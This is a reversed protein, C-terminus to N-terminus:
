VVSIHARLYRHRNTESDSLASDLKDCLKMLSDLRAVIRRQEALPLLIMPLHYFSERNIGPKLGNVLSKLRMTGLLYVLFNIDYFRPPIVYYAVDSVWSTTHCVNIAGASGKRGIIIAPNEVLYKDCYGIVGNSGYVPVTGTKIHKWKPLGKGYQLNLLDGARVWKWGNPIPFPIENKHIPPLTRVSNSKSAKESKKKKDSIQKLLVEVSEDTANQQLLQGRMAMDLIAQRLIKMNGPRATMDAFHSLIFHESKVFSTMSKIEDFSGMILQSRSKERVIQASELKDCLKMLMNVKVVIRKQEALPPLPIVLSQFNSMSVSGRPGNMHESFLGNFMSTQYVSLIYDSVIGGYLEIAILKNGFCIERDAIGCKKGASGGESCMLVAGKRVTAFKPESKPISVGNEYDLVDWGYGVDKTGIYPIGNKVSTYKEKKVTANISNGHFIDGIEQLQVWTWNKPLSFLAGKRVVPSSSKALKRKKSKGSEKKEVVIKKLLVAASEDATNQPLLQGHVAMDLILRRLYSVGGPTQEATELYELLNVKTM